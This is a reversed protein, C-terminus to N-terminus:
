SSLVSKVIYKQKINCKKCRVKPSYIMIEIFSENKNGCLSNGGVGLSDGGGPVGGVRGCM